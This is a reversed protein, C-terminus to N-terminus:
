VFIYVYVLVVLLSSNNQISSDSFIYLVIQSLCLITKQLEYWGVVGSSRVRM